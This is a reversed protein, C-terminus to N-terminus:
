VHFINDFKQSMRKRSINQIAFIAHSDRGNAKRGEDREKRKM